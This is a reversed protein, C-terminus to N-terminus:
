KGKMWWNELGISYIPLREPRGFKNWYAIRFNRTHWNPIVYYNWLLTRDLARASAILTELDKAAVLKETLVDVAPNKIGAMNAGGPIDARSSHWYALQENGPFLSQNFVHMIMDYDYTQLRKQYQSADVTRMSANIGLRKLNKLFPAAVREFNPASLLIQFHFPEGKANVLIGDKIKWGAQELLTRARLLNRRNFGTGDTIPNTFITEFAQGPILSRLPEMLELETGTPKGGAAYFSNAFYSQNRTYLGFFLTKNAWEFDFALNLAERVRVDQFQAKRTNFVFSQMGTPIAHPITEKKARGNRMAPFNYARAWDRAVNELRLDYAGAKFAELAVTADRYYDFSMIDFNNRGRNVPLDKAWYDKVRQYRISHGPAFDLIKYPGSGLPMIATGSKSFDKDKWFHKPIIPLEGVLLPLERNEDTKFSFKVESPSLAEAKEVDRYTQQYLPHGKEMLINFSFVVDDATIKQGDHWRAEPRLRFRVSRKDSAVMVEKALLGYRSFPEDNSSELLTDYIAGLGIAPSGKLIFGNLSDFTGIDHQRLTGGKPANPNVYDFHEFDAPYKVDGFPSLAHLWEGTKMVGGSYQLLQQKLMEGAFNAPLENEEAVVPGSLEGLLRQAHATPMKAAFLSSAAFLTLIFLVIRAM